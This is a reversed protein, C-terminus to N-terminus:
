PWAVLLTAPDLVLAPDEPTAEDHDRVLRLRVQEGEAALETVVDLHEAFPAVARPLGTAEDPPEHRHTLATLWLPLQREKAVAQLAAVSEESALEFPFGDIVALQPTFEMVDALFDLAESLRDATFGQQLYSHIHRARELALRRSDSTDVWDRRGAERHIRDYWGRVEHVPLDLAVHLVARGACLDALALQVLCATKGVGARAAVVGLEGPALRQGIRAHLAELPSPNNESM